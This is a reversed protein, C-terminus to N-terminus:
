NIDKKQFIFCALALCLFLEAFVPTLLRMFDVTLVTYNELFGDMTVLAQLALGMKGDDRLFIFNEIGVIGLCVWYAMAQRNFLYGICMFLALEAFIVILISIHYVFVVPVYDPYAYNGPNFGYLISRILAYVGITVLYIMFSTGMLCIAKVMYYKKRSIGCSLINHATGQSFEQTIMSVVIPSFFFLAATGCMRLFRFHAGYAYDFMDKEEPPLIGILVAMLLFLGFIIKILTTHKIKAFENLILNKM